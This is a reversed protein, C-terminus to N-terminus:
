LDIKDLAKHLKEMTSEEGYEIKYLLDAICRRLDQINTALYGDM